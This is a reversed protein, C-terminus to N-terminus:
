EPEALEAVFEFARLLTQGALIPRFQGFYSKQTFHALPYTRYSSLLHGDHLGEGLWRIPCLALM